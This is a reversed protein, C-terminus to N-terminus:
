AGRQLPTYPKKSSTSFVMCGVLIPQCARAHMNRRACAFGVAPSVQGAHPEGPAMRVAGRALGVAPRAGGCGGAGDTRRLEASYSSWYVVTQAVVHPVTARLVTWAKRWASVDQDTARRRRHPARTMVVCRAPPHTAWGALSDPAHGTSTLLVVLLMSWGVVRGTQIRINRSIIGHSM